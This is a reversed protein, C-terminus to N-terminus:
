ILHRRHAADVAETRSHVGLKGLINAVHTRATARTIFLAAAIEPNSRGAVLLRLVEQERATLGAAVAGSMPERASLTAEIASVVALAEGIAQEYSLANGAQWAAAYGDPGLQFRAEAEARDAQERSLPQATTGSIGYLSGAAGLLRAVPEAAGTEAAFAAVDGLLHATEWPDVGVPRLALSERYLAAAQRRDGMRHRALALNTLAYATGITNDAARFRALAEACLEAARAFDGAVCTEIGLRQVAWPLWGEDELERYLALAETAFIMAEATAGRQNAARSLVFRANAEAARDQEACALTLLQQGVTAAREHDSQLIAFQVVSALTQLRAESSVGDAALAREQWARGETIHGGVWWFWTLAGALRALSEVDGRDAFWTLAARFNQHDLALRDTYVADNMARFMPATGATQSLFLGAHKDRAESEEGSAILRELAFERITEFMGFRPEDAAPEPRVLSTEVLIGLMDLADDEDGNRSGAVAEAADATFGGAFVALRRFFAQQAPTLLDYSWAIAERMTKQRAPADRAGGRLLRLRDNMQMLLAGPSLMVTRAAALEIALPLGDLHRCIAAVSLANTADLRFAPRVARAREVFLQVADNQTLLAVDPLDSTPLPLPEVPLLQEALLRLPARSTALIQVAPCAALLRSILDATAALVHECNDFLLLAQRSRLHRELSEAVPVAAALTLGLAHAVTTPVLAPDALPALDIWVVGDPFRGTVDAAVALALRTKGV